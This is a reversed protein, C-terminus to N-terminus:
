FWVAHLKLQAAAVVMLLLLICMLPSYPDADEQSHDKMVAEFYTSNGAGGAFPSGIAAVFIFAAAYSNWVPPAPADYLRFLHCRSATGTL